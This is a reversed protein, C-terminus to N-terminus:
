AESLLPKLKERLEMRARHLRSKVTGKPCGIMDAIEEYDYGEIDKLVVVARHDPDLSDIAREILARREKADLVRSPEESTDPPDGPNHGEDDEASLSLAPKRRSKKRAHSIAANVAIRYVWTGFQAKGEFSSLGRYAKIFVEQAIDRADEYDSVFRYIVNLVRDQHRRVLASYAEMDGARCREVLQIDSSEEALKEGM